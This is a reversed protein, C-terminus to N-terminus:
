STLGLRKFLNRQRIQANLFRVFREEPSWHERIDRVAAAAENREKRLRNKPRAARPILPSM